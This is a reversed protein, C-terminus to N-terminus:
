YKLKVLTATGEGKPVVIFLDDYDRPAITIEEQCGLVKLLNPITTTHGVVLVVDNSNDKRLKSVFPTADFGKTTDATDYLQVQLTQGEAVPTATGITRKSDTSYVAGIGASRLVLALREARARGAETLTDLDNEAHRVVIVAKQAAAAAPVALAAFFLLPVAFPHRM